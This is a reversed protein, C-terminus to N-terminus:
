IDNKQTEYERPFFMDFHVIDTFAWAKLRGLIKKKINDLEKHLSRKSVHSEEVELDGADNEVSCWTM